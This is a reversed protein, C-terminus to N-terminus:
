AAGGATWTTGDFTSGYKAWNNLATIEAQFATFRAQLATRIAANNGDLMEQTVREVVAGSRLLALEGASADLYASVFAPNAYFKQRAAPVDAWMAYRISRSDAASVTELIIVKTAM